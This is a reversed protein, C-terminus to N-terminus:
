QGQRMQRIRDLDERRFEGREAMRELAEIPLQTMSPNLPSTLLPPVDAPIEGGVVIHVPEARVFDMFGYGMEDWTPTGWFVKTSPDPNHPNDASNDWWLTMTVKAGKPAFVPEKYNYQHQWDFDYTPVHLLVKHEGNPHTIEFKAAKGRVHMHPLFGLIYSDEEFVYDRSAAYNSEGAPIVFDFIGLPEKRVVHRIVTGDEWFVVGGISLDEVATGPGPQKNYHMQFPVNLPGAPLLVGYGEAYNVPPVGHAVGAIPWALIHHVIGSGPILQASKIWRARPHAEASIRVPVQLQLDDVDDGVTFPREFGILLDPEGISWGPGGGHAAGHGAHAHQAAAGAPTGVPAGSADGAPAGSEAWRILTQKDAEELWREGHFLGRFEPAADWPPMRGERVANAIARAWPRTDEYSTFSMPAVMGGVNEGGDPSHCSQCNARLIPLVDAYFTPDQSPDPVDAHASTLGAFTLIASAPIALLLRNWSPSHMLDVEM